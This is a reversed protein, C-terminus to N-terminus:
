PPRDDGCVICRRGAVAARQADTAAMSINPEAPKTRLLPQRTRLRACRRLASRKM